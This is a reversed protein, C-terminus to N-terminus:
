ICSCLRRYFNVQPVGKCGFEMDEDDTSVPLVCWSSTKRTYYPVAGLDLGRFGQWTHDCPAGLARMIRMMGEKTSIEGRHEQFSSESCALGAAVCADTCSQGGSGLHWNWSPTPQPTPKPPPYTYQPITKGSKAWKEKMYTKLQEAKQLNGDEHELLAWLPLLRMNIPFMNEFKVSETWKKLITPRNQQNLQLWIETRGGFVKLMVKAARNSVQTETSASSSFSAAASATILNFSGKMSAELSFRNDSQRQEMVVTEQYIGGVGAETAYFDGFMSHIQEPSKNLLFAKAQPSLRPWVEFDTLSIHFVEATTLKDLRFQQYQSQSVSQLSAEAAAQFAGYSGEVGLSAAIKEGFEESNESTIIKATLKSFTKRSVGGEKLDFIVKSPKVFFPQNADIRWSYALFSEQNEQDKM